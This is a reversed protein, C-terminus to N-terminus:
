LLRCVWHMQGIGVEKDPKSELRTGIEKRLDAQVVSNLVYKPNDVGFANTATKDFMELTEKNVVKSLEERTTREVPVLCTSDTPLPSILLQSPPESTGGSADASSRISYGKDTTQVLTEVPYKFFRHRVSLEVSM